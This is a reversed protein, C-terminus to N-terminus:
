RKIDGVAERASLVWRRGLEACVVSDGAATRLLSEAKRIRDNFYEIDSRRAEECCAIRESLRTIVDAANSITDVVIIPVRKMLPGRDTLKEMLTLSKYYVIDDKTIETLM